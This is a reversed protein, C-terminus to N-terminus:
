LSMVEWFIQYRRSDIGSRQIQLWSRQGSFWLPPWKFSFVNYFYTCSRYLFGLIRGYPDTVSVMHCGRDAFTPVLKASLRRDTPITRERVLVVSNRKVYLQGQLLDHLGIPNSYTLSEVNESLLRIYWLCNRTSMETLPQTLGLAM